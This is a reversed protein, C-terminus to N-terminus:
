GSLSVANAGLGKTSTGGTSPLDSASILTKTFYGYVCQSNGGVDYSCYDAYNSVNSKGGYGKGGVGTSCSTSTNSAGQLSSDEVTVLSVCTPYNPFGQAQNLSGWGTVVFSAFGALNYTINSGSLSLSSYVPIYLPTMTNRSQLFVTECNPPPAGTSGTYTSGTIQATCQGGCTQNKCLWGFQGPGTQNSGDSGGNCTSGGFGSTGASQALLVTESGAIPSNNPPSHPDFIKNKPDAFFNTTGDSELYAGNTQRAAITDLYSPPSTYPSLTSAYSANTPATAFTKGDNTDLYWECLSMTMPICNNCSSAPGWSAQACAAIYQGSSSHLANGFLSPVANRTQVQVNVYNGNAPAAPCPNSPISSDSCSVLGTSAGSTDTASGCILRVKNDTGFSNNSNASYSGYNAVQYGAPGNTYSVSCTGKACSQAVGLAAADAANQTQGREAYWSGVDVVFAGLGLLVVPLLIAILLTTAGRDRTTRIFRAM